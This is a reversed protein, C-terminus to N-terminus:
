RTMLKHYYAQGDYNCLRQSLHHIQVGKRLEKTRLDALNVLSTSEILVVRKEGRVIETDLVMGVHSIDSGTHWKIVNSIDGKGSFSIVDGFKMENRISEYM